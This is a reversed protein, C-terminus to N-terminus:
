YERFQGGENYFTTVTILGTILLMVGQIFIFVKYLYSNKIFKYFMFFLDIIGISKKRKIININIFRILRTSSNVILKFINKIM